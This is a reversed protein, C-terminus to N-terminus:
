YRRESIDSLSEIFDHFEEEKIVDFVHEIDIPHHPSILNQLQERAVRYDQVLVHNEPLVEILHEYYDNAKRVHFGALESVPQIFRPNMTGAKELLYTGIDELGAEMFHMAANYYARADDPSEMLQRLNLRLYGALKERMIPATKLFGRHNIGTTSRHIEFGYKEVVEDLTEHVLGTYEWLGNNRILRITESLAPERGNPQLNNIYFLFGDPSQWETMRRVQGLEPLDEDIDLHLIWEKTCARLAVNRADSFSGTWEKHIINVGWLNALQMSRDTSGTDVIIIEDVFAWYQNLFNHLNTEENKMITALSIGNNEVWPEIVAHTEDTVHSYDDNGILVPDKILDNEEYFVEKRARDEKRMQGLHKIRISTICFTHTPLQPLNGVHFARQPIYFKPVVRCMRMGQFEGRNGDSRWYGEDNWLHYWHFIFGCCAPQPHAMLKHSYEWDFKDEFIEDHDVSIVWDCGDDKAFEYLQQRDDSELQKITIHEIVRIKDQFPAFEEETPWFEQDSQDNLIYIRDVFKYTQALSRLWDEKHFDKSMKVRYLGGLIQDEKPRWKKYLELLNNVGGALEPYEKLTRSGYHYIYCTGAVVPCWGARICRVCLDNDEAGGIPFTEDDFLYGDQELMLDYFKRSIMFCFGSVFSSAIWNDENEEKFRVAIEDVNDVTLGPIPNSQIGGAFNTCPGVIGARPYTNKKHFTDIVERLNIDWDPTFLVDDNSGVLYDGTAIAFGANMGGGYGLNCKNEVIRAGYVEAIVKSRPLDGNLVVIVEYDQVTNKELSELVGQLYKPSELATPIIVSVVKKDSM